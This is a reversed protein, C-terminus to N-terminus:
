WFEVILFLVSWNKHLIIFYFSFRFSEFDKARNSHRIVLLWQPFSGKHCKIKLFFSWNSKFSPSNILKINHNQTSSYPNEVRLPLQWPILPFLMKATVMVVLWFAFTQPGMKHHVVGLFKLTLWYTKESFFSAVILNGTKHFIVKFDFILLNWMFHVM